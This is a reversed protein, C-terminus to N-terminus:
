RSRVYPYSVRDLALLGRVYLPLTSFTFSHSASTTSAIKALSDAVANAERFTHVLRGGVSALLLKAQSLEQHLRWPWEVIDHLMDVVLKSDMEIDIGCTGFAACLRLGELLALVM